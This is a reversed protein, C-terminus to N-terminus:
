KTIVRYLVFGLDKLKSVQADSLSLDVGNKNVIEKAHSQALGAM